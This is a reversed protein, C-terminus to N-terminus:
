EEDLFEFPVKGQKIEELAIHTSKHKRADVSVRATAGKQLQKSRQAALLILRYKSDIEHMVKEKEEVEESVEAEKVEEIEVEKAKTKKDAKKEAKPEVKKPM